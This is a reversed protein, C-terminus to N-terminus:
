GLERVLAAFTHRLKLLPGLLRLLAVLFFIARCLRESRAGPSVGCPEDFANAASRFRLRVDGELGTERAACKCLRPRSSDASGNCRRSVSFCSRLSASSRDRAMVPRCLWPVARSTATSRPMARAVGLACASYDLRELFVEFGRAHHLFRRRSSDLSRVGGSSMSRRWFSSSVLFPTM